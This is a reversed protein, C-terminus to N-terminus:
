KKVHEWVDWPFHVTCVGDHDWKGEIGKLRPYYDYILDLNVRRDNAARNLSSKSIVAIKVEEAVGELAEKVKDLTYSRDSLDDVIFIRNGKIIQKLQKLLEENKPFKKYEHNTRDAAFEIIPPSLDKTHFLLRFDNGREFAM